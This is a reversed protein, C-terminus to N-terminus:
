ADEENPEDDLPLLTQTKDAETESPNFLQQVKHQKFFTILEDLPMPRAFFYGQFEDCLHQNLFSAQAKTEIGEAVVKLGLHHAM